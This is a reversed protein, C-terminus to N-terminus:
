TLGETRRGSRVEPPLLELVVSRLSEVIALAESAEERTPYATRDYRVAVAYSTLAPLSKRFGELPPFRDQVIDLLALLNHTAPYELHQCTILTKLLKEAAQQLHFCATNLPAGHRLGIRAADFDTGALWLLDRAHDLDANM